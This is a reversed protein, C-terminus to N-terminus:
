LNSKIETLNKLKTYYANSFATFNASSITIVNGAINLYDSSSPVLITVAQLRLRFAEDMAFTNGSYVFTGSNIDNITSAQNRLLQKLDYENKFDLMEQTTRAVLAGDSIYVPYVGSVLAPLNNETVILPNSAEGMATLEALSKAWLSFNVYPKNALSFAKYYNM